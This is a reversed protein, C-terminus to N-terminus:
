RRDFRQNLEAGTMPSVRQWLVGLQFTEARESGVRMLLDKRVGFEIAKRLREVSASDRFSM